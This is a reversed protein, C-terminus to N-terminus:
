YLNVNQKRSMKTQTYLGFTYCLKIVCDIFNSRNERVERKEYEDDEDEVKHLLLQYRSNRYPEYPFVLTRHSTHSQNRKQIWSRFQLLIM